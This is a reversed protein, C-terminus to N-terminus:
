NEWVPSWKSDLLGVMTHDSWEIDPPVVLFYHNSNFLHLVMELGFLWQKHVELSVNRPTRVQQFNRQHWHLFVLREMELGSSLEMEDGGLDQDPAVILRVRSNNFNVALIKGRLEGDLYSVNFFSEWGAHEQM